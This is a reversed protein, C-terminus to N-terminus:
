PWHNSPGWHGGESNWVEAVHHLSSEPAGVADCQCAMYQLFAPKRGVAIDNAPMTGNLLHLLDRVAVDGARSARNGDADVPRLGLLPLLKGHQHVEM